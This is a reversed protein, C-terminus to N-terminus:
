AVIECNTLELGADPEASVTHLRSLIREREGEKEGRSTSERERDFYIFLSLFFVFVFVSPVPVDHTNPSSTEAGVPM